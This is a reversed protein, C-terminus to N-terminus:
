MWNWGDGRAPPLLAFRGTSGGPARAYPSLPRLKLRGEAVADAGAGAVASAPAPTPAGAEAGAVVMRGAPVFIVRVQLDAGDLLEQGPLGEVVRGGGDGQGLGPPDLLLPLLDREESPAFPSQPGEAARGPGAQGSEGREGWGLPTRRLNDARAGPRSTVTAPPAIACGPGDGRTPACCFENFSVKTAGGSPQSSM